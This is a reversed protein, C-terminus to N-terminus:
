GATQTSRQMFFVTPSTKDIAAAPDTRAWFVKWPLRARVPTYAFGPGATRVPTFHAKLAPPAITLEGEIASPTTYM